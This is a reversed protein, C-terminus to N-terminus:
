KVELEVPVDSICELTFNQKSYGGAEQDFSSSEIVISHIGLNQLYKSVVDVPIPADCIAKLAKVDAYPHSGNQGTITGNITIQYDDFGFYEKVTGQRGNIRTKAIIKPQNVVMLVTLFTMTNFTITKGYEDIYSDNLIKFETFVPTGIPSQYLKKDQTSKYKALDGAYPNKDSNKIDAQTIINFQRLPQAIHPQNIAPIIRNVPIQETSVSQKTIDTSM